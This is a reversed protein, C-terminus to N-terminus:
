SQIHDHYFYNVKRLFAIAKLYMEGLRLQMIILYNKNIKKSDTMEYHFNNAVKMIMRIYTRGQKM